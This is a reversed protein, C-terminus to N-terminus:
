SVIRKVMGAYQEKLSYVSCSGERSKTIHLIGIKSAILGVMAALSHYSISFKRALIAFIDSITLCKVQLFLHLLARRVGTRDRSLYNKLRIEIVGKIEHPSRM